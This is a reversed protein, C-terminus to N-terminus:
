QLMMQERWHVPDGSVGLKFLSIVNPGMRVRTAAYAGHAGDPACQAHPDDCINGELVGGELYYVGPEGFICRDDNLADVPGAYFGKIFDCHAKALAKQTNEDVSQQGYFGYCINPDDPDPEVDDNCGALKYRALVSSVAAVEAAMQCTFVQCDSLEPDCIARTGTAANSTEVERYQGGGLAESIAAWIKGLVLRTTSQLQVPKSTADSSDTTDTTDTDESTDADTTEDDPPEDDPTEDRDTNDGDQPAYSIPFPKGGSYVEEQCMEVVLGHTEALEDDITAMDFLQAAPALAAGEDFDGSSPCAEEDDQTAQYSAAGQVVLRVSLTDGTLSPVCGLFLGDNVLERLHNRSIALEAAADLHDLIAEAESQFVKRFAPVGLCKRSSESISTMCITQRAVMERRTTPDAAIQRAKELTLPAAAVVIPSVAIAAGSCLVVFAWIARSEGMARRSQLM